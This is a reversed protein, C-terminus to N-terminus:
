LLNVTFETKNNNVDLNSFANEFQKNIYDFKYDSLQFYKLNVAKQVLLNISTGINEEGESIFKVVLGKKFATKLSFKQQPDMIGTVAVIADGSAFSLATDFNLNNDTIYIVKKCKRGGTIDIVDKEALRDAKISYYVDTKKAIELNYDDDDIVIPVAKYYNLLQAILNGLISGGVVAVYEGKEIKLADIVSLAISLHNVFLAEYESVNQPLIHCYKKNIVAFEKLFGSINADENYSLYVKQGKTFYNSENLTESIQGVAIYGPIIPYEVDPANGAYLNIDKKTIFCKTIKVKIDDIQELNEVINVKSIQKKDTIQWSNM